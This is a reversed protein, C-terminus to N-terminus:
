ESKVKLLHRMRARRVPALGRGNEAADNLTAVRLPTWGYNDKANVDAGERLLLEAVKYNNNLAAVHLRRVAIPATPTPM